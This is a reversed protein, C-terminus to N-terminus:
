GELVITGAAEIWEIEMGSSTGNYKWRAAADLSLTEGPKVSVTQTGMYFTTHQKGSAETKIAPTSFTQKENDGIKISAGSRSGVSLRYHDLWVTFSIVAEDSDAAKKATWEVRLDIYAGTASSFSGSINIERGEPTPSPTPSPSAAASPSPPLAPSPSASPASVSPSPSAAPASSDPWVFNGGGNQGACGSFLAAFVAFITITILFKKM